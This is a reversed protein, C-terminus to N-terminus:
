FLLGTKDVIVGLLDMSVPVHILWRQSSIIEYKGEHNDLLLKM